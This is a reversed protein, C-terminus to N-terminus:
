KYIYDVNCWMLTDQTGMDSLSSLIWGDALISELTSYEEHYSMGHSLGRSYKIYSNKQTVQNKDGYFGGEDVYEDEYKVWLKGNRFEYPYSDSGQADTYTITNGDFTMSYDGANEQIYKGFHQEADHNGPVLQGGVYLTVDKVQYGTYNITKAGEDDNKSCSAVFVTIVVSAALAFLFRFDKM